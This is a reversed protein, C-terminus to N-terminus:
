YSASSPNLVLRLNWPEGVGGDATGPPIELLLGQPIFSATKLGLVGLGAVSHVFALCNLVQIGATGPTRLTPVPLYAGLGCAQPPRVEHRPERLPTVRHDLSAM